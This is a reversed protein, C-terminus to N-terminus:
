FQFCILYSLYLRKLSKLDIAWAAGRKARLFDFQSESISDGFSPLLQGESWHGLKLLMVAGIFPLRREFVVGQRTLLTLSELLWPGTAAIANYGAPLCKVELSHGHAFLISGEIEAAFTKLQLLQVESQLFFM